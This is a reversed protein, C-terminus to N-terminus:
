PEPSYLQVSDSAGCVRECACLNAKSNRVRRRGPLPSRRKQSALGPTSKYILVRDVYGGEFLLIRKKKQERLADAAERLIPSATYRCSYAFDLKSKKFCM